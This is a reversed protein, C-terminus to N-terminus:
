LTVSQFKPHTILYQFELKPIPRSFYYGQLLDAGMSALLRADKETEIGEAVITMGLSHGLKIIMEVIHENDPNKGIGSVFGKDIKLTDIPFEALYSFSSYGTGFDDLAIDIGLQRIEQLRRHTLEPNVMSAHETIEFKLKNDGIDYRYLLETLNTIFDPEELERLSLNVTMRLPPFGFSKWNSLHHLVKRIVYRGIDVILGSREAVPIFLDPFIMGEEPHEWRLLVEAGVLTQEIADYLPQFYLKFEENKLGKQIKNNLEIEEDIRAEFSEGGIILHGTGREQAKALAGYATNLLSYLTGHKPYLSIGGSFSLNQTKNLMQYREQVRSQFTNFLSYLEDEKAEDRVLIMFNVYNLHYVSLRPNGSALERLINASLNIIKDIEAYGLVARLYSSNDLELMLLAFTSNKGAQATIKTIDASAQYLNPLGSLHHLHHLHHLKQECSQDHILVIDYHQRSRESRYTGIDIRASFDKDSGFRADIFSSNGLSKKERHERILESLTLSEPKEPLRIQLTKDLLSLPTGTQLPGLKEAEENLYRIRRNRDVVLVMDRSLRCAKQLSRLEDELEPSRTKNKRNKMMMYIILCGILIAAGASGILITTDM